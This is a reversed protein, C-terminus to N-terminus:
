ACVWAPASLLVDADSWCRGPLRGDTVVQELTPEAGSAAVPPRLLLPLLCCTCCCRACAPLLWAVGCALAAAAAAAAGADPAALVCRETECGGQLEAARM